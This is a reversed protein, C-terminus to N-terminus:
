SSTVVRWFREIGIYLLDKNRAIEIPEPTLYGGLSPKLFDLMALITDIRFARVGGDDGANKFVLGLLASKDFSIVLPKEEKSSNKARTNQFAESPSFPERSRQSSALQRIQCVQRTPLSAAVLGNHDKKQTSQFRHHILLFM